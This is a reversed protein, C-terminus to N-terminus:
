FVFYQNASSISVLEEEQKRKHQLRQQQHSRLINQLETIDDGLIAQALSPDNQLNFLYPNLCFFHCM